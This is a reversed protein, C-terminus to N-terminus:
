FKSLLRAIPQTFPLLTIGMILNMGTHVIAIKRTDGQVWGDSVLLGAIWITCTTGLNAGLVMGIAGSLPVAGTSVLAIITTTSLSSSQWLMTCILGGLFGWYPNALYPEFSGLQLEKMGGAFLKLGFYFVVLGFVAQAIPNNLSM